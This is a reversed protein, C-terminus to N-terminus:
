YNNTTVIFLRVIQLRQELVYLAVVSAITIFYQVKAQVRYLVCASPVFHIGIHACLVVTQPSQHTQSLEVCQFCTESCKQILREAGLLHQNGYRWRNAQFHDVLVSVSDKGIKGNAVGTDGSLNVNQWQGPQDSFM